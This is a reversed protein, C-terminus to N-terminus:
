APPKSIHGGASKYMTRAYTLFTEAGESFEEFHGMINQGTLFIVKRVKLILPVIINLLRRM